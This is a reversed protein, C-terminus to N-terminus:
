FITLSLWHAEEEGKDKESEKMESIFSSRNFLLLQINIVFLVQRGDWSM